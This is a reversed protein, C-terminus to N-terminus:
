RRLTGARLAPAYGLSASARDAARQIQAGMRPLDAPAARIVPAGLSIAAVAEGQADFIPAAAYRVGPYTEEDNVAYGRQRVRILEAELTARDRITRETIPAFDLRDLLALREPEDMWALFCKGTAVSHLPLVVGVNSGLTAGNPGVVEEVCLAGTGALVNLHVAEGTEEALARMVRLAHRRVDLREVVRHGFSLFALGLRYRKTAPDQAAYGHRVLTTLLRHVTSKNLGLGAAIDALSLEAQPSDRLHALVFLGRELSQANYERAFTANSLAFRREPDRFLRRYYV